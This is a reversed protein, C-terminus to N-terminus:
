RRGRIGITPTPTRCKTGSAGLRMGNAFRWAMGGGIRFELTGVLDKDNAGNDYAGVSGSPVLRLHDGVPFDLHIGGFGYVM